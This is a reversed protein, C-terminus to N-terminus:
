IMSRCRTFIPQDYPHGEMGIERLISSNDSLSSMILLARNWYGSLRRTALDWLPIIVDDFPFMKRTVPWKHPSNVPGRHIGRVFALSASSQYKSQDSGSYVASYVITISTILSAISDMTVDHYHPWYYRKWSMVYVLCCTYFNELCEIVKRPSMCKGRTGPEM